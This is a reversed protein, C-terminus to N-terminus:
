GSTELEPYKPVWFSREVAARLEADETKPAHGEVQAQKAIAYALRLSVAQIGDLPPLLPADADTAAPSCEALERAAARLMGDSVRRAGSAAVALGVAPFIYLNNSQPICYRRNEFEVPAFPSGSAVLARGGTWHILDAPQAEAREGPNSLPFIIPRAVTAAMQRVIAQTFLGSQASCGILVGPGAQRVVEALGIRGEAREWSELAALPQAYRRQAGDLNAMGDHLLGAADVLYFRRRAETESLGEDMMGALLFDATGTGAGGAGVIVIKEDKLKRGAVLLASQVAGLAVAATGQIDDNFTCLRDAYRELIPRAHPKAFDEWQLLVDPLEAMVAQVFEEIFDWYADGGIREHRWGLYLPDNRLEENNTGVDLLIPLTRAPHVGGLLTYLTLKGVPIGMGGVGQDGIGLVREGDTVVIVKAQRNLRNALMERLRGRLPYSLFLGRPKRYIHSFHRCGQAVTPAYVMPLMTSIHQSLLAYFLVENRDQLERLFIHRDLDTACNGYAEYNRQIQDQLTLVHPPLLGHLGFADREAVSFATGKNLLPAGMLAAGHLPTKILSDSM